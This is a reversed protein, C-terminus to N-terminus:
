EARLVSMPDVRSAARAPLACALLALLGMAVTVSLLTAPDRADTQFLMSEIARSGWLALVLGAACGAAAIRVGRGLVMAMVQEPSAGLAVRIALERKRRSLWYASVGYVGIAGLLAATVAFALALNLFFRPRAITEGIRETMTAAEVVPLKADLEWVRQKVMRLVSAQNGASRVVLAFFGNRGAPVFPQYFEMGEGMPDGPGMLKIDAAVGVVTMWPQNTDM